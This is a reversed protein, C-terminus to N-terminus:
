YAYTKIQLNFDYTQQTQFQGETALEASPMNSAASGFSITTVDFIRSSKELAVLFKELSVYDGLASMSFTIDKVEIQGSKKSTASSATAKSLFLNKVILSNEAATKQLYYILKGLAPDQPLADDIKKIDDKRAQLDFYTKSIANYYTVEANYEAQKEAVTMQLAQYNNYEPKVFFFVLVLVIFLILAITIPRDIQM